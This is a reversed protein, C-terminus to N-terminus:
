VEKVEDNAPVDTDAAVEEYDRELAGIDERAEAFEAEEMGEAAYWHVFARKAYMVDFKTTLRHWAEAVATSNALLCVARQIKGMEGGPYVMPQQHNIGVKFGTPCWDVFQINKRTKILAIAANIDKPVVDGRFLLCCAIYKGLHPNCKVMQSGPEFCEHTISAVSDNHRMSKEVPIIPAYSAIPFHIRPFPILNTQFEILDVNLLGGFRLSATVSSIIQGILRNLNKYNPRGIELRQRCVEYIAENDVLFSCDSNELNTHSCLVSNYPEVVATSVTPSPYLSFQLKSKKAYENTLFDMILSVFGSGTGGGFSHFILFGQPSECHEYLLRIKDMTNDLFARGASYRGRAYNNAADEKGSILLEPHYLMKYPGTRIEDIVTPELDIFVARPVQKNPRIENFFGSSHEEQSEAPKDPGVSGDPNIGHEICYLEWCTSGIQVGAQGVHLSIVERM